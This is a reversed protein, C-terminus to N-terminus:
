NATCYQSELCELTWIECRNKLSNTKAILGDLDTDRYLLEYHAPGKCWATNTGRGIGLSTSLAKFAAQWHRHLIECRSMQTVHGEVIQAHAHFSTLSGRLMSSFEQLMKRKMDALLDTTEYKGQYTMPESEGFGKSM